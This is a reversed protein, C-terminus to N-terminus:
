GLAMMLARFGAMRLRNMILGGKESGKGVANLNWRVVEAVVKGFGEGDGEWGVRNEILTEVLGVVTIVEAKTM